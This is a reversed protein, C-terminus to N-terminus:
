FLFTITSNSVNKDFIRILEWLNIASVDMASVADGFPGMGSWVNGLAIIGKNLLFKLIQYWDFFFRLPQVKPKTM